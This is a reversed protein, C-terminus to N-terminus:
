QPDVPSGDGASHEGTSQPGKWLGHRTKEWRYPDVVIQFLARWGGASMLVWYIPSFLADVILDYYRRRYCGLMSAYVFAFNGIFLCLASLLFVFGPFLHALLESRTTFWIAAMGWFLPNVLFCVVIGGVLAQFHLFNVFGLERVLKVPNRMHVLYTQMYGKLWRTRQRIWFGFSSCAEEWTTTDLMRTSYGARCIRVGLDCDETVNFADWGMLERLKETIFHNSTGGLPIVSHVASLGPLCLDFWSSYEATFWRTLRNQRPNYFNLKSQLCIVKSEARGFAVVAKKLQDREPRDEADYIVLYPGLAYQLGINCAKPKTRPESPPVLTVKFGTPLFLRSIAERTQDDDEEVLLQVDLKEKPYDMRKLAAVLHEVSEQEQYLPVLVSYVPLEEDNLAALDEATVRMEAHSAISFYILVLKYVSFAIYFITVVLILAGVTQDPILWLLAMLVAFGAIFVIRQPVTTTRRASLDPRDVSLLLPNSERADLGKGPANM